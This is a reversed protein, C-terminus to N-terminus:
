SEQGDHGDLHAFELGVTMIQLASSTVSRCLDEDILPILHGLLHPSFPLSILDGEGGVRFFVILNFEAVLFSLKTLVCLLLVLKGFYRLFGGVSYCQIERYM